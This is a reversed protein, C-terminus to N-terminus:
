LDPLPHVLPEKPHLFHRVVIEGYGRYRYGGNWIFVENRRERFRRPRDHWPAAPELHHLAHLNNNLYMLSLVPGTEIIVTRHGVETRGQHELYSRLVTLSVGPWAYLLVYQWLPIHCVAMVWVLVIAAAPIHIFWQRMYAWDGAYLKTAVEWWVRVAFYPPGLVLRGAVTTMAQRYARHLPHMRALAEASVYTSEPDEDVATLRENRHHKLHTHRYQGYPLWLWLSPFVFASNWFRSRFPYGHVAEHQLSGHLAVVYGGLPLILWWPLADHFWTLLGYAGYCGVGVWVTPWDVAPRRRAAIRDTAALAASFEYLDTM